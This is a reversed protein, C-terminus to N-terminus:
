FKSENFFISARDLLKKGSKENINEIIKELKDEEKLTKIDKDFLSMQFKDSKEFNSLKIGISRIKEGRILMLFLNRVEKYIYSFNDSARELTTQKSFTKFNNNKINVSVVRAKLNEKRLKKLLESLQRKLLNDLFSLDSSDKSLTRSISISPNDAKKNEVKSEDIGNAYNYLVIGQKGFERILINLSTNRLDNIKYIGLDKLKKETKKGVMFLFAIDKNWLKDALEEKFLTNVKNPKELDNAMKALVKNDGIGINVTYKFKKYIDDKIKYALKLLDDYLYKTGSMDLFCEDISYIEITPSYNKLYNFLERSKERYLPFDAPYNKLNRDLRRAEYLTMGSRIGKEKAKYSAALVVGHRKDQDGGIVSSFSRIDENTTDLIKVATWSLYASNVDIHFVVSKKM